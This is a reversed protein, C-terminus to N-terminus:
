KELEALLCWESAYNELDKSEVGGTIAVPLAGDVKETGWRSKRKREGPAADAQPPPPPPPGGGGYGSPRSPSDWASGGMPM